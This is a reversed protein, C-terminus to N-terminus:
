IVDYVRFFKYKIRGIDEFGFSCKYFLNQKIVM